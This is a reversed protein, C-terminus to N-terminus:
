GPRPCRGKVSTVLTRIGRPDSLACPRPKARPRTRQTVTDRMPRAHPEVERAARSAGHSGSRRSGGRNTTTAAASREAALVVARTPRMRGTPNRVKRRQLPLTPFNSDRAKRSRKSWPRPKARPRTRQTVTDRMPRAHPEVERAARSAGHSGSRRSGGRNTTTAAASREAALVVARTPRMRGTPNRVKRRQLPLTPFNSDRAKRSRKSWPRPKARPRTRQTVPTGCPAAVRSSM